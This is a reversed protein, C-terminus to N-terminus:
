GRAGLTSLAVLFFRRDLWPLSWDFDVVLDEVGDATAPRIAYLRYRDNPFYSLVRSVSGGSSELGCGTHVEIYFDPCAKMTSTAGALAECEYGEVDLYVLDPAGHISTLEDIAVARVPVGREDVVQGDWEKSFLLTGAKAAIAENRIVVHKSDNLQRNEEAVTANYPTAEVAIVQGGPGVEHALRLAVVGQHAGLDFVRAGQRLKGMRLLSFEPLEGGGAAYWGAAMPDRIAVTLEVPGFHRRVQYARFRKKRWRVRWAHLRRKLARPLISKATAIALKLM